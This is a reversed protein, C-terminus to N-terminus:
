VTSCKPLKELGPAPVFDAEVMKWIGIGFAM